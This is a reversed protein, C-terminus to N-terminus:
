RPVERIRVPAVVVYESLEDADEDVVLGRAFLREPLRSHDLTVHFLEIIRTLDHELIMMTMSTDGVLARLRDLDPVVSDPIEILVKM